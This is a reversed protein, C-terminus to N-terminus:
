PLTPCHRSVPCALAYRSISTAGPRRWYAALFGDTCDSPVDITRATICRSLNALGDVM